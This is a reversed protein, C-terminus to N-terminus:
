KSPSGSSAPLRDSDSGALMADIRQKRVRVQARLENGPPALGLFRGYAQTAKVWQTAKEYAIALNLASEPIEPKLSVSRELYSIAEALKDQRLLLMGLDNYARANAPDVQLIQLLPRMAEQIRGSTRLQGALTFQLEFGPPLKSSMREVLAIALEPKQHAVLERVQTSALALREVPDQTSDLRTLIESFAKDPKPLRPAERSVTPRHSRQIPIFVVGLGVLAVSAMFAASFVL